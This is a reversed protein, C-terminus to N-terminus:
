RSHGFRGGFHSRLCGRLFCRLLFGTLLFDNRGLGSIGRDISFRLVHGFRSRGLLDFFTGQRRERIFGGLVGRWFAFWNRRSVGGLGRCRNFGIRWFNDIVVWLIIVTCKVSSIYGCEGHQAALGQRPDGGSLARRENGPGLGQVLFEM